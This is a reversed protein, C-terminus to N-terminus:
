ARFKVGLEGGQSGLHISDLSKAGNGPDAEEGGGGEDGEDASRPAEGGSSAEGAEEPEDGLLERGTGDPTTSVNV